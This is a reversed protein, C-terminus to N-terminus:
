YVEPLEGRQRRAFHSQSVGEPKANGGPPRLRELDPLDAPYGMLRSYLDRRTGFALRVLSYWLQRCEVLSPENLDLLQAIQEAKPDRAILVGSEDMTVTEATLYRTPDPTSNVGKVANCRVCAYALNDYDNEREPHTAIPELHEVAFRSSQGSWTERCLCYVCRFAFEDRLWSRYSEPWAYGAPAHIRSLPREPYAYPHIM